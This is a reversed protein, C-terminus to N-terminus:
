KNSSMGFFFAITVGYDYFRHNSALLLISNAHSVDQFKIEWWKLNVTSGKKDFSKNM